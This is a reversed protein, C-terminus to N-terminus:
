FGGFKRVNLQVHPLMQQTDGGSSRRRDQDVVQRLTQVLRINLGFILAIPLINFVALSIYNTIQFYTQLTPSDSM